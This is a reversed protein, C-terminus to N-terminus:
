KQEDVLSSPAFSTNCINLHQYAPVKAVLVSPISKTMRVHNIIQSSKIATLTVSLM